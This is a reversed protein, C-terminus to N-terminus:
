GGVDTDSDPRMDPPLETPIVRGNEDMIGKAQLEEVARKSRESGEKIAAELFRRRQEPDKLNVVSLDLPDKNENNM